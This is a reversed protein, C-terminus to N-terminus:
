TPHGEPVHHSNNNNSSSSNNYNDDQKNGGDDDEDHNGTHTGGHQAHADIEHIEGLVKDTTKPLEINNKILKQECELAYEMVHLYHEHTM